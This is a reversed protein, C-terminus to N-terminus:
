PLITAPASTFADRIAGPPESNRPRTKRLSDKERRNNGTTQIVRLEFSDKTEFALVESRERSRSRKKKNKAQNPRKAM